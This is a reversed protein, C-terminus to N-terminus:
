PGVIISLERSLTEIAREPPIDGKLSRNFQEAMEESMELYRPHSPRSRANNLATRSLRLIPAQNLLQQDQYLAKRTPLYSGVIAMRRQQAASTMFAIFQWAEDQHASVANIFFPQDGITGNGPRGDASPLEVVGVQDRRLLQGPAGIFGHLFAWHRCFIADGDFFDVSSEEETYTHVREPAVGDDVMSRETRLGRIAENTNIIVQNNGDLVDGGHTWIFELGNCVGSEYAAGQFVYGHQIGSDQKVRLAIRKLEDWSQPPMAFGSQDLLDRRYYLLGVDTYWPVGWVRGQYTNAEISDDLFKNREAQPFRGSLDAIWGNAAFEAPWIVDGGIVDIRARGTEFMTRLREHYRGTDAPMERYIVNIAPNQQNFEDVLRQVIGSEDPVFSFVIDM